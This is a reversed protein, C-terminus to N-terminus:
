EARDAVGIKTDTTGRSAGHHRHIVRQDVHRLRELRPARDHHQGAKVRDFDGVGVNVPQQVCVGQGRNVGIRQFGM